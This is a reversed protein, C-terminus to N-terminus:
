ETGANTAAYGAEDEGLEGRGLTADDANGPPAVNLTSAIPRLKGTEGSVGLLAGSGVGPDTM